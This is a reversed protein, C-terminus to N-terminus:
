TQDLGMVTAVYEKCLLSFYCWKLTQRFDSQQYKGCTARRDGKPAMPFLGKGLSWGPTVRKGTPGQEAECHQSRSWTDRTLCM